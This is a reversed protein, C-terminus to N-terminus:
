TSHQLYFLFRFFTSCGPPLKRWVIRIPSPRFYTETKIFAIAGVLLDDMQNALVNCWLFIHKLPRKSNITTGYQLVYILDITYSFVEREDDSQGNQNGYMNRRRGNCQRDCVRLRNTLNRDQICVLDHKRYSVSAFGNGHHGEGFDTYFIKFGDASLLQAKKIFKTKFQGLSFKPVLNLRIAGNPAFGFFCDHLIAKSQVRRQLLWQTETKERIM